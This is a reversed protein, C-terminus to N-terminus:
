PAGTVAEGWGGVPTGISMPNYTNPPYTAEGGGPYTVNFRYLFEGPPQLDTAGPTWSVWGKNTVQDPDVVCASGDVIKRTPSYYYNWRSYAIDITVTAGTLDIAGSGDSICVQLDPATDLAVYYVTKAVQTQAPM